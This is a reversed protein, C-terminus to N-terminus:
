TLVPWRAPAGAPHLRRRRWRLARLWAERLLLGCLGILLAGFVIDSAFHRGQAVRVLGILLGASLGILAWRRRTRATGFLGCAMLVFGTAAHGSVFSCNTACLASPHLAPQFALAGAFATTENPQPRGWHEKFVGHVVAGLGLALVLALAACSRFLM